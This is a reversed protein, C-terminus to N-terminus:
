YVNRGLSTQFTNVINSLTLAESSNFARAIFAFSYQRRSNENAVAAGEPNNATFFLPKTITYTTPSAKSAVSTGNKYLNINTGASGSVNGFWFGTSDTSAVSVSGSNYFIATNNTYRSILYTDANTPSAPFPSEAGMDYGGSVNTNVYVGFSNNTAWDATNTSPTFSTNTNSTTGSGSIGTNTFNFSGTYNLNFSSTSILNWKCSDATGGVLPYIAYFKNLLNNNTLDFVLNDLSNIINTDSIGAALAFDRVNKNIGQNVELVDDMRQSGLMVDNILTNGIYVTQM